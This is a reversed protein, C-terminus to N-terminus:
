SWSAWNTTSCLKISIFRLQGVWSEEWRLTQRHWSLVYWILCWRCDTVRSRQVRRDPQSFTSWSNFSATRGCTWLSWRVAHMCRLGMSRCSRYISLDADAMHGRMITESRPPASSADAKIASTRVPIDQLLSWDESTDIQPLLYGLRAGLLTLTARSFLSPPGQTQSKFSLVTARAM